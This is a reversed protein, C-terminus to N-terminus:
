CSFQVHFLRQISQIFVEMIKHVPWPKKKLNMDRWLQPFHESKCDETQQSVYRHVKEGEGYFVGQATLKTRNSYCSQFSLFLIKRWLLLNVAHLTLHPFSTAFDRIINLRHSIYFCLIYRVSIFFSRLHFGIKRLFKIM